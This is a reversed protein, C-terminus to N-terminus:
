QCSGGVCTQTGTCALGCAGCNNFDTTLNVECGNGPINDCNAFGPNCSSVQCNGGSCAPTAHALSCVHGCGGCNAPDTFLNDECGNVPNGDCNGFGANCGGVVCIGSACLPAGNPTVCVHGCGGCNAPDSQTSRECGNGLVGDCDAFGLNCTLTCTSNTCGPTANNSSCVNGCLGCANPNTAVNTECGNAPNGDCDAFGANCAAVACVGGACAPTGNAASCVHGCAGCNNPDGALPTECGTAANNDCDAFGANCSAVQCVASVCAASGHAVSCVHGCAGCNTPDTNVSVECGTSANGDCNAFGANCAISCTSSSCSATGNTSSCVNGCMGCNTKDTSVAIECGDGASADCDAFGANCSAVSCAGGACTETGNAGSCVHGCTGCNNADTSVGTECGNAANGDCNAFGAVCSGVGCAGATCVANAHALACVHGCAGCNNADTGTAAECGNAANGDCNAFGASCASVACAGATCVSTAHALACAQGCAGCNNKDTALTVECGNSVNGDCDAKGAPCPFDVAVNAGGPPQMNLTVSVPAGAVVVATVPASLFTAVSSATVQSCAVSYAAGTFTDTGLPLGKLMELTSAGNSVSIPRTLTSTPTTITIVICSVNSPAQVIAIQAMGVDQPQAPASCAALLVAAVAGRLGVIRKMDWAKRFFIRWGSAARSRRSLVQRAVAPAVKKAGVARAADEARAVAVNQRV